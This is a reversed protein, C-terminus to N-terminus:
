WPDGETSTLDADTRIGMAHQLLQVTRKRNARSAWTLATISRPSEPDSSDLMTAYPDAGAQLLLKVYGIQGRYAACMLATSGEQAQANVNAGKEILFPVINKTGWRISDLLVTFGEPDKAELDAGREVMLRFLDLDDTEMAFGLAWNGLQSKDNVDYGAHIMAKAIEIRFNKCARMFPTQGREDRVKLSVGQSVLQKATEDDGSEIAQFLRATDSATQAIGRGSFCGILLALLITIWSSGIRTDTM